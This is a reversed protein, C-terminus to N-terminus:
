PGTLRGDNPRFRRNQVSLQEYRMLVKSQYAYRDRHSQIVKFPTIATINQTKEGIETEKSALYSVTTSSLGIIDM